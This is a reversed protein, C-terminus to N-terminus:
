QNAFWVLETSSKVKAPIEDIWSLVKDDIVYEPCNACQLIPLAMPRKRAQREFSQFRRVAKGTPDLARNPKIKGLKLKLFPMM